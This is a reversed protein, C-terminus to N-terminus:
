EVQFPTVAQAIPQKSGVPVVYLVARYSGAKFGDLPLEPAATAFGSADTPGLATAPTGVAVDEGNMFHLVMEYPTNPVGKFRFYVIMRDGRSKVFRGAANPVIRIAGNMVLPDAAALSRESEPVSEASSGLVLSSLAPGNAPPLPPLTIKREIVTGKRAQPDYVGLELSYVGAPLVLSQPFQPLAAARARFADVRASATRFRTTRSLKSVVNRSADRVLVVADVDYESIDPVADKANSKKPGPDRTVAALASTDVSLAIPVRWGSETAFRETKMWVKLDSPRTEATTGTMLELVPQEFPLMLTSHAGPVAYYGKRSRVEVDKRLVKVEISRFSGDIVVEAPEYSLAYYTRLDSAIAGFGKGLDNTNRVIVGGTDKAIRALGEDNGVLGSELIRDMGSRGETVLMRDDSEISPPVNRIPENGTRRVSADLGRASVTNIALNARNAASVMADFPGRVEDNLVIGSSYLVMSKRGPVGSYTQAIAVISNVIARAQIQDRLASFYSEIGSATASLYTELNADARAGAADGAPAPQGSGTAILQGLTGLDARAGNTAAEQLLVSSGTTAVRMANKLREKNNTFNQLLLPRSTTVYVAVLDNTALKEDIFRETSSYVQKLEAQEVSTRDVLIIILNVNAALSSRFAEPVTLDAGTGAGIDAPDRPGKRVLGFSTTAQKRGNEYIEVEDRRLDVVPKGKRDTVVVDLLVEGASLKVDSPGDQGDMRAAVTTVLVVTALVCSGLKAIRM